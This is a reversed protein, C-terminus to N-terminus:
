SNKDWFDITRHLLEERSYAMNSPKVGDGWSKGSKDELWYELIIKGDKKIEIIVEEIIAEFIAVYGSLIGGDDYEEYVYVTEGVEYHKILTEKM